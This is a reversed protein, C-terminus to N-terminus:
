RLSPQKQRQYIHQRLKVVVGACSLLRIMNKQSDTQKEFYVFQIIITRNAKLSKHLRVDSPKLEGAALSNSFAKREYSM